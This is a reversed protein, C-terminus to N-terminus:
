FRSETPCRSKTLRIGTALMFFDKDLRSIRRKIERASILEHMYEPAFGNLCKFVLLAVKFKIRYKVPLFHLRKLYPMIPERFKKGYLGFIYRVANNQIKQLKFLNKETLGGYVSNCYDLFSLINSHVLQVKLEHALRSGIRKLNRLNLFSTKSVMNIQESMNMRHDFMFGLNKAHEVPKIISVEGLDLSVVPSVYHGIDIFETKGENLKLFNKTMWQTIELFCRKVASLDPNESHVDFAFYIQTDDAYLNISFGYKTVINEWDKTYLVFLLPGLISGQPVGIELLCDSSSSSRVKVNFKRESLYSTLWELV